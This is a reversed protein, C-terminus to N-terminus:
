LWNKEGPMYCFDPLVLDADCSVGEAMNQFCAEISSMVEQTIVDEYQHLTHLPHTYCNCQTPDSQSNRYPGMTHKAIVWAKCLFHEADVGSFQQGNVMNRVVGNITQFGMLNLHSEMTRNCVYSSLKGLLAGFSNKSKKQMGVVMDHGHQSGNGIPISLDVVEGFAPDAVFEEFDCVIIHSMWDIKGFDSITAFEM